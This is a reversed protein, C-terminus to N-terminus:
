ADRVATAEAHAAERISTANAQAEQAVQAAKDDALTLVQGAMWLSDEDPSRDDGFWEDARGSDPAFPRGERRYDTYEPSSPGAQQQYGTAQRRRPDPRREFNNVERHVTLYGVTATTTVASHRGPGGSGRPSPTAPRRPGPRGSGGPSRPIWMPGSPHTDPLHVRPVPASPHDPHMEPPPGWDRGDQWDEWEQWSQEEPVASWGSAARADNYGGPADNYGGPADNYDISGPYRNGAPRATTQMAVPRANAPRDYGVGEPWYEPGRSPARASAMPNDSRRHKAVVHGGATPAGHRAIFM